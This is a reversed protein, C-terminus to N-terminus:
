RVPQPLLAEIDARIADPTTSPAYRKVTEGDPAVLFKTFNWRIGSGLRGGARAKLFAFVPHTAKGNVDVKTSLPFDVGYNVRCFAEIAEDDGPEQHAFQDCPFGLVVLGQDRYQEHLAQLGEYQPTFGCKSATNVVLVPRGAYTALPVTEGRNTTFSLEFLSSHDSMILNHVIYDSDALRRGPAAAAGPFPSPRAHGRTRRGGRGPPRPSRGPDPARTRGALERETPGHGAVAGSGTTADRRVEGRWGGTAIGRSEIFAKFRKLDGEVQGSPIGIAAGVKEILGTPEVDMTLTIRTMEEGVRHFDVAGANHDGSTSTWAIRQDPTQETIEADWEQRRGAITAVWHLHTADTQGVSEVGDMFRPFSEFQTWQDYAERVPVAIDISHDIKAM